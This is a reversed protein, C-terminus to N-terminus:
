DVSRSVRSLATIINEVLEEPPLQEGAPDTLCQAAYSRVLEVSVSYLAARVASLQQLIEHCDREESIMRQIGGVQGEIRRLRTLLAQKIAENQVKM